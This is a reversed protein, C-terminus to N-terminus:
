LIFGQIKSCRFKYDVTIEPTIVGYGGFLSYVGSKYIKGALCLGAKFQESKSGSILVGLLDIFCGKM